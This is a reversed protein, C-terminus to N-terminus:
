DFYGEPIDDFQIFERAVWGGITNVWTHGEQRMGNLPNAMIVSCEGPKMVHVVPRSLFPNNKVYEAPDEVWVSQRVNVATKACFDRNDYVGSLAPTAFSLAAIAGLILRKM